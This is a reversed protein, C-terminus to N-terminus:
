YVDRLYRKDKRLKKLFDAAEADSMAGHTAIIRLLSQEVDKAMREADGCVYLYAGDLLWQFLEAGNEELRHQVYIKEAQDRSFAVSLRLHGRAELEHWYDEYYFDSLQRREGFFLWHKGTAGAVVREQLFGRYPAVGTGPGIMILPATVDAPVTFDKSPQLYVPLIAEHLPAEHCLYHSATGLRRQGNSEYETLAVTLHAEEGVAAMSSAISYFRPLLPMVCAALEQPTLVADSHEELLDWIHRAELYATFDAKSEPLLLHELEARKRDHSQKDAILRLLSRGGHQLNAKANLFQRFPLADGSKSVVIEDGTASLTTLLRSVIKADNLPYIALSDGVKYHIGSGKLDVVLHKTVKDSASSSLSYRERLTAMFPHTRTYTPHM